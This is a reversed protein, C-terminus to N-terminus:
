VNGKIDRCSMWRYTWSDHASISGEKNREIKNLHNAVLPVGTLSLSEKFYRNGVLIWEPYGLSEHHEQLHVHVHLHVHIQIDRVFSVYTVERISYANTTQYTLRM